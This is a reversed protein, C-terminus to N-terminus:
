NDWISKNRLKLSSLSRTRIFFNRHRLKLLDLFDHINRDCYVFLFTQFTQGYPALIFM